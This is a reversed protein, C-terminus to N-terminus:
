EEPLEARPTAGPAAHLTIVLAVVRRWAEHSARSPKKKARKPKGIETWYAARAALALQDISGRM